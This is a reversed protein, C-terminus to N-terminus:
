SFFFPKKKISTNLFSNLVCCSPWRSRSRTAMKKDILPRLFKSLGTRLHFDSLPPSPLLITPIFFGWGPLGSRVFVPRFTQIQVLGKSPKELNCQWYYRCESCYFSGRRPTRPLSGKTRITYKKRDRTDWNEKVSATWFVATRVCGNEHKLPTSIPCKTCRCQM